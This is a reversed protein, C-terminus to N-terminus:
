PQNGREDAACEKLYAEYLAEVEADTPADALVLRMRASATGGDRIDRGFLSLYLSCHGQEGHPMLVAFADEPPAMMLAALGSAPDRRVGLAGRYQAIPHFVVPHPPHVWRGDAVLAAAAEDRPFCQWIGRDPTAEVFGQDTWGYARSFGRLYSTMFIEFRPLDRRATVQTLVDLTRADAWRYEMVLEYPHREDAEWRVIVVGDSDVAATSPRDRLDPLYRREADLARYPGVLGLGQALSRGTARCIVPALGYSRGDARLGGTLAETEFRFGPGDAVFRPPASHVGTVALVMSGVAAAAMRRVRPSRCPATPQPASARAAEDDLFLRLLDEVIAERESPRAIDPEFGARIKLGEMAELMLDVARVPDQMVGGQGEVARALGVYFVRVSDYFQSWGARVEADEQMLVFLGTTFMRNRRDMVCSDVSFSLAQRLRERPDSLPALVEHIQRQWERYYLRGAALVLEKKDAYHWYLSGKTVGAEAAIQDLNVRSFGHRAFLEFASRALQEPM